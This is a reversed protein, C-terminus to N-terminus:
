LQEVPVTFIEALFAGAHEKAVFGSRVNASGDIGQQEVCALLRVREPAYSTVRVPRGGGFDVDEFGLNRWSTVLFLNYGVMSGVHQAAVDAGGGEKRFQGAIESKARQIMEVVGVLRGNAVTDATGMVLKATVCNGYYGDKAPVYKRANVVFSMGVPDEPNSLGIARTRCQWLLATVAEFTTCPVGHSHVRYEEKIGNIVKPPVTIDVVAVDVPRLSMVLEMFGDNSRTPGPLLRDDWRVPLVSPSPLGRALEWPRCSSAWGLLM